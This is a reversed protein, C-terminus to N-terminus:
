GRVASYILAGVVIVFWAIFVIANIRGHKEDLDALKNAIERDLDNM